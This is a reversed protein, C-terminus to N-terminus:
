LTATIREDAEAANASQRDCTHMGACRSPTLRASVNREFRMSAALPRDMACRRGSCTCGCSLGTRGIRDTVIPALQTSSRLRWRAARAFCLRLVDRSNSREGRRRPRVSLLPTGDAHPSFEPLGNTEASHVGAALAGTRRTHTHELAVAPSVASRRVIWPSTECPACVTHLRATYEPDVISASAVDPRDRARERRSSASFRLLLLSFFFFLFGGCNSVASRRGEVRFM